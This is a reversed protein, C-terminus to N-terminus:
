QEGEVLEGWQVKEGDYPCRVPIAIDGGEDFSLVCPTSGCRECIFRYTM